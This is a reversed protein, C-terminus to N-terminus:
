SAAPLRVVLAEGELASGGGLAQVIRAAVAAGLDRLADGTLVAAADETVPSFRVELGDVELLLRDLGGHRVACRAYNALAREAADADLHLPAGDGSVEVPVASVAAAAARALELADTDRPAPEWRGAEIRAVLGLDDLLENMQEAATAMMGLYRPLPEDLDDLQTLTRAFGNVTALPTRLDHCALSVLRAFAPDGPV